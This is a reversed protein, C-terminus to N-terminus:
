EQCREAFALLARNVEDAHTMPMMHAADEVIKAKGSPVLAAMVRSMEPTSNEEKGGTMFLAPCSLTRLANEDPGDEGAFVSYAAKYGSPDAATLWDRCASREPSPANGFWRALTAAPDSVSKGDLAAAREKVAERAAASRKFIANLAVVGKVKGSYRNALDLAIMAGMSHGVVVAPRDFLKAICDGFDQLGASGPLAASASHGPLDPALIEYHLSLDAIQANWAEARLGVGHILLIRPGTGSTVVALGNVDSRPRTTWNM